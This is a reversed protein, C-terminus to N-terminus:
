SVFRWILLYHIKMPPNRSTAFLTAVITPITM